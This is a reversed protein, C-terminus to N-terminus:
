SAEGRPAVAAGGGWPIRGINGRATSQFRPKMEAYVEPSWIQFRKGLGVFLASDTLGAWERVDSGLVIRGTDDLQIHRADGLLAHSLAVTEEEMLPMRDLAEVLEEFRGYGMGEIAPDGRVDRILVVGPQAEQDLVKRFGAPISVRGKGDIKHTSSGSFYKM